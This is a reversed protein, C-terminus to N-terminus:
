GGALRINRAIRDLGEAIEADRDRGKVNNDSRNPIQHRNQCEVTAARKVRRVVHEDDVKRHYVEDSRTEHHRHIESAIQVFFPWKSLIM